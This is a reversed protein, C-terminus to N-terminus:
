IAMRVTVTLWAEFQRTLPHDTAVTPVTMM